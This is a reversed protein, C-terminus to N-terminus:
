RNRASRAPAHSYWQLVADISWCMPLPMYPATIM